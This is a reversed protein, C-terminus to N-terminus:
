RESLDSGGLRAELYDRGFDMFSVGRIRCTESVTM